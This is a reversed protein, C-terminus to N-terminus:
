KIGKKRRITISGGAERHERSRFPWHFFEAKLDLQPLAHLM